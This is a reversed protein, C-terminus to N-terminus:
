SEATSMLKRYLLPSAIGPIHLRAIVAAAITDADEFQQDFHRTLLLVTNELEREGNVLARERFEGVMMITGAFIALVLLAGCVTLWLVPGRVTAALRGGATATRSVMDRLNHFLVRMGWRGPFKMRHASTM